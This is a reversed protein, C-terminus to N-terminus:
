PEVSGPLSREDVRSPDILPVPRGPVSPTVEVAYRRLEELPAHSPVESGSLRIM